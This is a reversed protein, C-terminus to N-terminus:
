GDNIENYICELFSISKIKQTFILDILYLLYDFVMKSESERFDYMLLDDVSMTMIMTLTNVNDFSARGFMDENQYCRHHCYGYEGLWGEGEVLNQGCKWCGDLLPLNGMNALVSMMFSTLFVRGSGINNAISIRNKKYLELYQNLINYIGADEAGFYSAKEIVELLVSNLGFGSMGDNLVQYSTVLSADHVIDLGNRELIEMDLLHYAEMLGSLKGGIRRAGKALVNKRGFRDTLITLIKDNEGFNRAKIVLVRTKIINRL